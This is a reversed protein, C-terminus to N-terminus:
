CLPDWSRTVTVVASSSLGGAFWDASGAAKGAARHSVVPRGAAMSAATRSGAAEKQERMGESPYLVTEGTQSSM